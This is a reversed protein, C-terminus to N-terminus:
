QTEQLVTEIHPLFPQLIQTYIKKIAILGAQTRSEFRMSLVPQTNAPRVIAWGHACVVRIGDIFVCSVSPNNKFETTLHDMIKLKTDEQCPIRYEKSSYREPLIHALESMKKGSQVLYELLRLAAYIGDDYGFYRDKFFFHCSGEAGIIADHIEMHKKIVAHGTPAIYVPVNDKAFFEVLADSMTVNIVVGKKKVSTDISNGFIALLQDGLLLGGTETIAAMRDADGDLGIGVTAHNKIVSNKLADMNKEVTPDAEHAPFRGDITDFLLHCNPWNFINVLEKIISSGVAHACDIIFNMSLNHLAPFHSLLFTIYKKKIDSGDIIVGKQTLLLAKHDNNYFFNKIIQIENGYITQTGVMIKIGNYEPPNHSATIMLGFDATGTHMGFYLTPSPIMGGDILSLGNDIIAKSLEEFMKESSLRGDRGVLVTKGDPKKQLCYRIIAKGLQYVEELILEQGVIGRIDYERFITHKM